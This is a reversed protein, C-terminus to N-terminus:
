KKWLGHLNCYAYVAEVTEDELIAFVAEPKDEPSLAKRQIGKNTQVSIWEIYHAEVMPHEVEGVKVYVKGDKVEYVPVHKEVAADTTGPILETMKQGCCMVPVGSDKVVEVMNGCHECVYIKQEM